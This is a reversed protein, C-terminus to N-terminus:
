ELAGPVALLMWRGAREWQKEFTERSMRVASSRTPDNLTVGGDEARATVAFHLPSRDSKQLAVIVPRGKAFQEELDSLKGRLTFARFGNEEMYRKMDSLLIGKQEAHYLKAYADDASPLQAATASRREWYHMVMAVSAAGCGDKKQAYFPIALPPATAAQAMMAALVIGLLHRM